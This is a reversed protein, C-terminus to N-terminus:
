SYANTTNTLTGKIFAPNELDVLSSVTINQRIVDDRGGDKVVGDFKVKPVDIDLSPVDSVGITKTSDKMRVRMAKVTGNDYYQTFTNDKHRITLNGQLDLM